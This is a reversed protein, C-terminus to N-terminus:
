MHGKQFPSPKEWEAASSIIQLAPLSTHTRDWRSNDSSIRRVAKWYITAICLFDLSLEQVGMWTFFHCWQLKKQPFMTGEPTVQKQSWLASPTVSVCVCSRHTPLLWPLKKTANDRIHPVSVLVKPIYLISPAAALIICEWLKLKGLYEIWDKPINSIRWPRQKQHSTPANKAQFPRIDQHKLIFLPPEHWGASRHPRPSIVRVSDLLCMYLKCVAECLTFAENM